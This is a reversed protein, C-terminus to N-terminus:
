EVGRRRMAAMAALGLLLVIALLGVPSLTPIEELPSTVEVSETFIEDGPNPDTADSSVMVQNFITGSADLDVAVEVAYSASAGAAITELTCTPVGDPDEACGATRVFTVEPPLTETVVVNTAPDPGANSVEIDYTLIEGASVPDPTAVKTIALDAVPAEVTTDESATDNASVPDATTASVTAVNTIQGVAAVAVDVEITYVASAGAAIAGLTCTPAGNPDESCGATSVLTVGAPLTDSVVVNFADDPGNNTVELSYTLSNGAVVPDPSDTKAISLDAMKTPCAASPPAALFPAFAIDVSVTDGSGPGVGSPGDASGWWNNTFATEPGATNLVGDGNFVVCNRSSGAAFTAGGALRIGQPNNLIVNDQVSVENGATVFIGAGNPVVATGAVNTGIFNGQVLTGSTGAGAIRVGESSNGSILNGAGPDPGGVATGSSGDSVNVGYALNALAGSGSVQTGIWNGEIVTAISGGTVSIGGGSNGSILNLAGTATGGITAGATGGLVQIGQDGNGLSVTGTADPGIWNGEVTPATTGVMRIGAQGNASILNAAGVVLGGIQTSASGVGVAIGRSANGLPLLGSVTTGIRNGQVITGSAGGGQITLGNGLNASIVNGAGLVLGGIVNDASDLILIGHGSNPLPLAGSFDTGIFNGQLVHGFSNESFFVGDLENGSIVNRAAASSGGIRNAAASSGAQVGYAGNGLDATGAADTGILNGEISNGTTLAGFLRVGSLTNGSILNGAGAATGGIANPGANVVIVGSTANALAATGALDTGIFNGEVRNGTATPVAATDSIEVGRDGNGSIVNRAGAATGGVVNSPAAVIRVGDDGNPLAAAGTSAVGILNGQVLNGTTAPDLIAVGALTNGSIVNGAGGATGGITNDAAGELISVGDLSNPLAGAGSGDPGILNGAVVNGSTGASRIQVGHAGNGSIVNGNNGGGGVTNGSAGDSISVGAGQNGLAILGEPNTGILNSQISNGTTGAERLWVGFAGNGSIVNGFGVGGGVTNDSAAGQIVVGQTGNGLAADGAANLGIYNGAVVNSAAGNSLAVGLGNGSIVNRAAPTSGGITNGTVAAGTLSIGAANGLAATGAANIGLFNGEFLAGSVTGFSLIGAGSWRNIVLGRVTCNSALVRLGAAAGAGSGELEILLVADSGTALSNASAGPQTYGDVTVAETLPPLQGGPTITQVGAGPISFEIDDAGPTANAELIAARLTCDGGATACVGDIVIDPADGVSDVTFTAASLVGPALLWAM